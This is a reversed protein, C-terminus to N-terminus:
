RPSAGHDSVLKNLLARVAVIELPKSLRPNCVRDLFEQAAPTFAGGTIFVTRQALEPHHQELWRHLDMGSMGPMMLDCLVGHFGQDQQLLQQAESGSAVVVVDHERALMRKLARGITPEDDVVLLRGRSVFPGPLETTIIEDEADDGCSLPLRVTLRTGQGLESEALIEGGLSTIMNHCISLGLGSGQGVEKTTFFPDFMRPLLEAPIGPGTDQVEVEVVDGNLRTRVLIENGEVDGEEIAQASNILLNLFVQVLQGENAALTPIQGYDRALRARHQLMNEAMKIAKDIVQNLEIPEPRVGEVRSFTQLNQVIDRIRRAGEQAESILPQLENTTDADNDADIQEEATAPRLTPLQEALRQLNLLVYTLPNNIEHAVGAALLGVSAMRDAQALQRHLRQRESIDRSVAIVGNPQGQADHMLAVNVEAPFSSGDRRIMEASLKGSGEGALFRQMEGAARLRDDEQLLDDASTGLLQDPSDFGHLELMRDNVRVVQGELDALLMADPSAEVLARYQAESDALRQQAQERQRAVDQATQRRRTVDRAMVLGGPAGQIQLPVLTSEIWIRTGDPRRLGFEAPPNVEGLAVRELRQSVLAASDPDALDLLKLDIVEDRDTFGLLQAGAPNCYIVREDQVLYIANTSASLIQEYFELGRAARELVTAHDAKEPAHALAM